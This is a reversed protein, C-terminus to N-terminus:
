HEPRQSPLCFRVFTAGMLNRLLSQSAQASSSYRDYVDSLTMYTGLYITDASPSADSVPFSPLSPPVHFDVSPPFSSLVPSTCIGINFIVIFIAPVIWHVSERATGGFAFLGASFLIGGICAPYLRVEPPAKGNGKVLARKYIREQVTNQLICSIAAGIFGCILVTGAQGQSFGYTDQFVHAIAGVFLFVSGARFPRSTLM